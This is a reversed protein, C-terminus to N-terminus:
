GPDWVRPPGLLGLEVLRGRLERHQRIDARCRKKALKVGKPTLRNAERWETQSMGQKPAPLGLMGALNEQSASIGSRTVLDLYTDHVMKPQLKPLGHEMLAGNILPLDHKRLYHGTVLDAQDYMVVFRKLMVESTVEPIAWCWIQKEGIWGCAIATIEATTFDKGLYTLPRNEIDLDLTRLRGTHDWNM